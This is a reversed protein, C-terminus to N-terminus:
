FAFFIQQYIIGSTRSGKETRGAVEQLPNREMQCIPGSSYYTPGTQMYIYRKAWKAFGTTIQKIGVVPNNKDYRNLVDDEDGLFSRRKRAKAPGGHPLQNEDYFGCIEWRRSIRSKNREFKNKWHKAESANLNDDCWESAFQLLKNLRNNPHRPPVKKEEAAALSFLAGVFVKMTSLEGM